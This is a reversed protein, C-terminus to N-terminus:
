PLIVERKLAEILLGSKALAREREISIDADTEQQIRCIVADPACTCAISRVLGLHRYDLGDAVRLLGALVLVTQQKDEGILGFLPDQELVGKKSHAGAIIATMVRTEIPVTFREDSLIMHRSWAAHGNKGRSWGIDHLTGAYELLLREGAGLGHVPQTGDFLQLAMRTVTAAHAPDTGASAPIGAIRYQITGTDSPPIRGSEHRVGALLSSKLEDWIGARGLSKWYQMMRMHLSARHRERNRLFLNIGTLTHPYRPYQKSTHPRQRYEAQLAILQDIWVDCDHMDGLIEQVKKIRRLIKGQGRRYLPSYTEITYRLRKASIRMEHHATIADPNDLSLEHALLEDLIMSIHSAADAAIATAGAAQGPRRRGRIFIELAGRIGSIVGSKQLSNLTSDIADQLRARRHIAKELFIQMELVLPDIPPTSDPIAGKKRSAKRIASKLFGIQVDTDKAKGLARTIRKLAKLGTHYDREPFCHAFLPLAARLRRSAVRMRHVCEIDESRRVGDIEKEFADLLPIVREACFRGTEPYLAGPWEPDPM